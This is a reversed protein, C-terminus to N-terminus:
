TWFNLVKAEAWLEKLSVEPLESTLKAMGQLELKHCEGNVDPGLTLSYMGYESWTVKGGIGGVPVNEETLVDLDLNEAM